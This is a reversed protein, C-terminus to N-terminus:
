RTALGSSDGDHPVISFESLFPYIRAVDLVTLAQSDVYVPINMRGAFDYVTHSLAAFDSFVEPIEIVCPSESSITLGENTWDIRSVATWAIVKKRRAYDYATVAEHSIKLCWAIRRLRRLRVACILRTGAWTGSLILFAAAGGIQGSLTAAVALITIVVAGGVVMGLATAKRRTNLQVEENDFVEFWM